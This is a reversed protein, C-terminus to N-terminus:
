LITYGLTTALANFTTKNGGTLDALQDNTLRTKFLIAQNVSKSNPHANQLYVDSRTPISVSTDSGMQVGNVYFVFDNNAYGIACKYRTDSTMSGYNVSADVSAGNTIRGYLTGNYNSIAISSNGYEQNGLSFISSDTVVSSVGKWVFEVFLTGETQGILSSIGTKSASDALRTVSSALTPIYSTPYSSQELQAGYIYFGKLSTSDTLFDFINSTSTGCNFSVICRYWGNSYEKISATHGSGQTSVVGTDLNFFSQVGSGSVLTQVGVIDYDTKKAFFSCSYTTSATLTVSQRIVNTSRVNLLDANQTGDPSIAQNPVVSASGFKVWAANDFQESYLALNTSQKELLLSGCGGGTYDIRPVNLRDTTPFYPKATAGINVQAGWLYCTLGVSSSVDNTTTNNTIFATFRNQATSSTIICRYWGSGVSEISPTAGASPTGVIVGDQLDFKAAILPTNTNFFLYRGTGKKAYVSWTNTGTFSTIIFVGTESTGTSTILDATTTGNPAAISNSTITVNLKSWYANDFTESQQLLNVPSTEILGEANVRTATSARTFDLDGSGDTPKLSYIKDEKYGSPYMILSADDYLSM